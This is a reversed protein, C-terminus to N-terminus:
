IGRLHALAGTLDKETVSQVIGQLAALAGGAATPDTADAEVLITPREGRLLKRSFDAPVSVVFYIEGKTLAHRAEDETMSGVISFYGTNRMAAEISRTFQSQEGLVLATPMNKPDNNIAYGFLLLQMIPVGVIMGFTLRDRKLQLFEKLVIAWWRSFSFARERSM